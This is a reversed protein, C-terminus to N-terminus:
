QVGGVEVLVVPVGLAENLQKVLQNHLLAVEPLLEGGLHSSERLLGGAANRVEAVDPFFASQEEWDHAGIVTDGLLLVVVDVAAPVRADVAEEVSSISEENTALGGDNDAVTVNALTNGLAEPSLAGVDLDGLDVGDTGQLSGHVAVVDHEELVDHFGSVDEDGAGTADVDDGNLVHPAHLVIGYEAVDALTVLLDLHRFEALHWSEFNDVDLGSGVVESEGVGSLTDDDEGVTTKVVKATGVPVGGEDHRGGEGVLRQAQELEPPVPVVALVALADVPKGLDTGVALCHLNRPM